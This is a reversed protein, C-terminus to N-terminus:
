LSIGKRECLYVKERVSIYVMGVTYFKLIQLFQKLIQLIHGYFASQTTNNPFNLM